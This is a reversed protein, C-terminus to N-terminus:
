ERGLFDKNVIKGLGDLINTDFSAGSRYKELFYEIIESKQAESALKFLEIVVDASANEIKKMEEANLMRSYASALRLKNVAREDAIYFVGEQAFRRMNNCISKLDGFPIDREEGFEEFDYTMGGDKKDTSLILKGHYQSIVLIDTDATLEEESDDATEKQLTENEKQLSLIQKQMEAMQAMLAKLDESEKKEIKEEVKTEVKKESTSATARKPRGAM